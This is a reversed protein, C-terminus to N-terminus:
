EVGRRTKWLEKKYRECQGKRDHRIMRIWERIKLKVFRLKCMMSTMGNSVDGPAINWMDVVFKDFGELEIWHHFFRFPIPGYDNSSERLIIPCHDSFYRDLTNANINPILTFLNESIFFRDVKSMNTASKHCWTYKSGGLSVEVLGANAIFANFENAGHVNFVSGFRDSKYRVENFDGMVVVEGDWKSITHVMYEWMSRKDRYDHPGYVVFILLDVGSKLWLGRIIFFFDSVTYSYKRFSNPDWVCLIGGSYGVSSSHFQDFGYNGWCRRVCRIDM